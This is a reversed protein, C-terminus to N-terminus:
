ASSGAIPVLFFSAGILLLELAVITGHATHSQFGLGALSLAAVSVAIPHSPAFYTFWPALGFVWPALGIGVAAVVQLSFFRVRREFFRDRFSSVSSDDEGVLVAAVVFLVGPSSLAWLFRIATWEVQRFAWFTWWQLVAVLVLGFIWASHVWYRRSRDLASTLGSLLRGLILAYLLAM